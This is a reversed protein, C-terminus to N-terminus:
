SFTCDQVGFAASALVLENYDRSQQYVTSVFATANGALAATVQKAENKVVDQRAKLVNQWAGSSAPPQGLRRLEQLLTSTLGRRAPQDFFQGVQPLLTTDPHFPDFNSFPFGPLSSERAETANCAADAREIFHSNAAPRPVVGVRLGHNGPVTIVGVSFLRGNALPVNPDLPIDTAYVLEGHLGKYAGSVGTVQWPPNMSDLHGVGSLTVTGESTTASGTCQELVDNPIVKTFVCTDRESGVMHGAADRLSGTSRETDGPSPGAPPQDVFTLSAVTDFVLTQEARQSAASSPLAELGSVVM